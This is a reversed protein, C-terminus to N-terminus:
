NTQIILKEVAKPIEKKYAQSNCMDFFMEEIEFNFKGACYQYQEPHEMELEHLSIFDLKEFKKTLLTATILKGIDDMELVPADMLHICMEAFESKLKQFENM